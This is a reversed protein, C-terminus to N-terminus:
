RRMLKFGIDRGQGQMMALNIWFFAFQEMLQFKDNGGVNICDAFGADLALQKAVEKGRASDGAVFAEIASGGYVPNEMNNFGTTNFCKVVDRTATASLIADSTNTFGAPGRGMVINMADIIVKGATDGLSQAVEVAAPAPTALLIVEAAQVAEQLPHVSTHPNTLLEKGKFNSTDKVGLLITHGAKAWKTALAGGVNGTGIIAIKM